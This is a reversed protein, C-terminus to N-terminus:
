SSAHRRFLLWVVTRSATAQSSLLRVRNLCRFRQPKCLRLMDCRNVVKSIAVPAWAAVTAAALMALKGATAEEAVTSSLCRALAASHRQRASDVFALASTSLGLPVIAMGAALAAALRPSIHALESGVVRVTALLALIVAAFLSWSFIQTAIFVAGGQVVM